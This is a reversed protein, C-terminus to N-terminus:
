ASRGPTGRATAEPVLGINRLQQEGGTGDVGGRRDGAASRLRREGYRPSTLGSWPRSGVAGMAKCNPTPVFTPRTLSYRPGTAEDRNRWLAEGKAEAKLLRKKPQKLAGLHLWGSSSRSLTIGCRASVVSPGGALELQGTRRASEAPPEQVAAKLDSRNRRASPPPFRRVARVDPGGTRGRRLRCGVPRRCRPSHSPGTGLRPCPQPLGARPWYGSATGVSGSGPRLLWFLGGTCDRPM